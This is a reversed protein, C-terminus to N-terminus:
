LECVTLRKQNCSKDNWQGDTYMEVCKEQGKGNPENKKWRTFMAPFRNSYLFIGPLPGEKLGLYAYQNYKKLFFMIANNEAENKPAAIRGGIAQCIAHTTEIKEDKGSSVIIKNGVVQM